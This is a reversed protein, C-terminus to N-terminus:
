SRYGRKLKSPSIFAAPVFDTPTFYRCAPTNDSVRAGLRNTLKEYQRCRAPKIHGKASYDNSEHAWHACQRCTRGPPGTDCFHAQGPVVVPPTINGHRHTRDIPKM